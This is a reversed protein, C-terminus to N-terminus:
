DDDVSIGLIKALREINEQGRAADMMIVDHMRQDDDNVRLSISEGIRKRAWRSLNQKPLGTVEAIEAISVQDKKCLRSMAAYIAFLEGVTVRAGHRETLIRLMEELRTLTQYRLEEAQADLGPPSDGDSGDFRGEM